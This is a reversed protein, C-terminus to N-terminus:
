LTVTDSYESDCVSDSKKKNFEKDPRYSIADPSYYKVGLSDLSDVRDDCCTDKEEVCITLPYKLLTYTLRAENHRISNRFYDHVLISKFFKIKRMQYLQAIRSSSFFSIEKQFSRHTNAMIVEYTLALELKQQVQDSLLKRFMSITGVVVGEYTLGLYLKNGIKILYEKEPECSFSKLLVTDKQSLELCKLTYSEKDIISFLPSIPDSFLAINTESCLALVSYILQVFLASTVQINKHKNLLSAIGNPTELSILEVGNSCSPDLKVGHKGWDTDRMDMGDYSKSFVVSHLCKPLCKDGKCFGLPTLESPYLDEHWNLTPCVDRLSAM